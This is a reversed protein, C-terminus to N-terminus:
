RDKWGRVAFVCDTTDGLYAVYLHGNIFPLEAKTSSGGVHVVELETPSTMGYILIAGNPPTIEIDAYIAKLVDGTPVTLDFEAHYKIQTTM